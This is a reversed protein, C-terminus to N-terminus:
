QYYYSLLFEFIWLMSSQSHRTFVIKIENDDPVDVIPVEQMKDLVTFGIKIFTLQAKEQKCKELFTNCKDQFIFATTVYYKNSPVKMIESFENPAITLTKLLDPKTTHISVKGTLQLQHAARKSLNSPYSFYIALPLLELDHDDQIIKLPSVTHLKFEAVEIFVTIPLSSKILAHIDDINNHSGRLLKLKTIDGDEIETTVESFNRYGQLSSIEDPDIDLCFYLTTKKLKLILFLEVVCYISTFFTRSLLVICCRSKAIALAIDRHIVQSAELANDYFVTADGKLRWYLSYAAHRSTAGSFSIMYDHIRNNDEKEIYECYNQLLSDFCQKFTQKNEKETNAM